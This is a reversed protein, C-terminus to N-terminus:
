GITIGKPGVDMTTVIATQKVGLQSLLKTFEAGNKATSVLIDTPSQEILIAIPQGFADRILVRSASLQTPLTLGQHAEITM